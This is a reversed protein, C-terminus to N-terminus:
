FDRDGPMPRVKVGSSTLFQRIQSAHEVVHLPIGAVIEGYPTGAYRHTSPVPRLALEDTLLECSQRARARCWDVYDRLEDKTFVRNPLAFTNEDFPAPPVWREFDGGVDYDLCSLAHYGLFWPASGHLGGQPLRSTTAEAPWLDTEWLEDPCDALAADLLRLASEFNRAISVALVASM